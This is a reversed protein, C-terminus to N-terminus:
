DVLHVDSAVRIGEPVPVPTLNYDSNLVLTPGNQVVLRNAVIATYASKSGVVATPDVVLNGNPLYITGTLTHANSASISHIRLLAKAPNDYFLMGAMEGTERGSLEITADKMFHM